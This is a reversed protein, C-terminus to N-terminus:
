VSDLDNKPWFKLACCTYENKLFTKCVINYGIYVRPGKKACVWMLLLIDQKHLFNYMWCMFLRSTKHTPNKNQPLTQENEWFFIM